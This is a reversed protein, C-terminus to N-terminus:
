GWLRYGRPVYEGDVYVRGMTDIAFRGKAIMEITVPFIKWDGVQKLREQHENIIRNFRVNDKKLEDIPEPLNVKMPESVMLLPGTDVGEDVWITSARLHTEGALIADRVASDGTFRRTGDPGIISLDGPHVNVCRPLTIYSMYGGLAIIDISFAKVLQEAVHDYEKRAEFGERTLVSRKIGRLEHFRRIDYSFYPIGAELAIKEGMCSGDSRDSFIFVVEYPSKGEKKALEKEHEILRIVNTGSGSMFAAVRMPRGAKEPNFILEPDM